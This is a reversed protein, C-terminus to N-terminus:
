VGWRGPKRGFPTGSRLPTPYAHGNWTSARGEIALWGIVRGQRASEHTTTMMEAEELAVDFGAATVNQQRTKVWETDNNTQVQSLVVPASTFPLAGSFTVDAWTSSPLSNGVTADTNMKGVQLRTGDALEWNGAELVVYSVTEENHWGNHGSPSRKM